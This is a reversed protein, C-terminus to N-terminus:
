GGVAWERPTSHPAVHVVGCGSILFRHVDLAEDFRGPALLQDLLDSFLDVLEADFIKIQLEHRYRAADAALANGGFVPFRHRLLAELEDVTGGHIEEEVAVSFIQAVSRLGCLQDPDRLRLGEHLEGPVLPHRPEPARQETIALLPDLGTRKEGGVRASMKGADGFWKLFTVS